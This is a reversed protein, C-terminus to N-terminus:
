KKFMEALEALKEPISISQPCHDCCSRCQICDTPKGKSDVSEYDKQLGWSGDVKAINYLKLYEPINIEMPCNPTCYHCATCPVTLYKQQLKAAKEVLKLDEEDFVENDSFTAVNDQIQAMDSMGSLIVQANELSRVFRLAWSAISWNPHKKKLLAEAEPCLSALRGGRVPEMVMMPIGQQKLVEYEKKTEAFNWDYYNVQLQAFDWAHHSAFKKLTEVSAHSSFGLYKIRGLRKQELFYDICGNNLYKELYSDTLCHILYFDIYNTKLRKLQEEFVAKYDEVSGHYKTAIYYSDRPYAPLIEGLCRESDGNNYVYATDFYNIGHQYGYDIIKRSEEVDIKGEKLPLRMNGMGLRSLVIGDKYAKKEM